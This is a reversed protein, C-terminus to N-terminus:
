RKGVLPQWANQNRYNSRGGNNAHKIKPGTVAHRDKTRKRLAQRAECDGPDGVHIDDRYQDAAASNGQNRKRVGAHKRTGIGCSQASM